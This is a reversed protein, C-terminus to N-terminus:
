LRMLSHCDPQLASDTRRYSLIIPFAGSFTQISSIFSLASGKGRCLIPVKLISLSYKPSKRVSESTNLLANTAHGSVRNTLGTKPAKTKRLFGTEIIGQKKLNAKSDIIVYGANLENELKVSVSKASDLESYATAVTSSLSDVTINLSGIHRRADTLQRNLEEIESLQSNVQKRLIDITSQLGENFLSSEKLGSEMESIQRNRKQLTAKVSAIDALIRSRRFSDQRTKQGDRKALGGSAKDGGLDCTVDRVLSFLKDRESVAAALEQKSAEMLNDPAGDPKPGSYIFLAFVRM